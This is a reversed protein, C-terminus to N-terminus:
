RTTVTRGNAGSTVPEKPNAIQSAPVDALSAQYEDRHKFWRRVTSENSGAAKAVDIWTATPNADRYAFAAKQADSWPPRRPSRDPTAGGPRPPTVGDRSAPTVADRAPTTVSTVADARAKAVAADREATMREVMAALDAAHRADRDDLQRRLGDAEDRAMAALAAQRGAERNADRLQVRLGDAEAIMGVVSQRAAAAESRARAADAEAVQAREEASRLARGAQDLERSATEFLATTDALEVRVADLEARVAVLEARVAEVKAAAAAKEAALADAHRQQEEALAAAAQKAQDAIKATLQRLRLWPWLRARGAAPLGAAPVDVRYRAIRKARRVTELHALAHRVSAYRATQEPGANARLPLPPHNQWALWAAATDAPSTIWRLGFTPNVRVVRPGGVEGMLGLIIHLLLMGLLSLLGLYFGGANSGDASGAEHDFNIAASAITAIWVVRYAADAPKQKKVAALTLLACAIAVGDLTLPVLYEWGDNWHLTDRGFAVLGKFSGALVAILFAITAAIAAAFLGSSSKGADRRRVAIVALTGILLLQAAVATLWLWTPVADLATAIGDLVTRWIPNDAALAATPGPSTTHEVTM